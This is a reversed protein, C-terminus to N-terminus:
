LHRSACPLPNCNAGTGCSRDLSVGVICFDCTGPVKHDDWRVESQLIRFSLQKVTQESFSSVIDSRRFSKVPVMTSSSADADPNACAGLAGWTMLDSVRSRGAGSIRLDTRGFV